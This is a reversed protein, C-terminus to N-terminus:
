HAVKDPRTFEYLGFPDAGLLLRDSEVLITTVELRGGNPTYTRYSALHNGDKDFHVLLTGASVWLEETERDVGLATVVRPPAVSGGGQERAREARALTQVESEPPPELEPIKATIDFQAYGLRDYKLVTPEPLYDFAFYVNSAADRALLGMKAQQISVTLTSFDSQDTVDSPNGFERVPRGATDYVTVLRAASLSAVAVESGESGELFAVSEPSQVQIFATLSGDPAYVKVGSAGRDAVAIRGASDVDFSEGYVIAASGVPHAPVQGIRKGSADYIAVAAGPASLVYYNGGPGRRVGRLGPGVDPLVRRVALLETEFPNEGQARASVGGAALVVILAAFARAAFRRDIRGSLTPGAYAM